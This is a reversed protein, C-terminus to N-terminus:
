YLAWIVVRISTLSMYNLLIFIGISKVEEGGGCGWGGWEDLGRGWGCGCMISGVENKKKKM